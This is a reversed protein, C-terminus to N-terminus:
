LRLPRRDSAASLSATAVVANDASVRLALTAPNDDDEEEQDNDKEELLLLLLLLLTRALLVLGREAM